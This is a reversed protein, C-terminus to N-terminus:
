IYYEFFPVHARFFSRATLYVYLPLFTWFAWKTMPRRLFLLFLSMMFAGFILERAGLEIVVVFLMSAVAAISRTRPLLLLLAALMEFVYVGNSVILFLTSDVAYPGAGEMVIAQGRLRQFEEVPLMPRFFWAFRDDFAISHGLFQGDFYRGYLVKQLGTYFFFVITMWRVGRMLLDGEARRREDLLGFLILFLLELFVHNATLPFSVVVRLGVLCAAIAIAWRALGPILGGLCVVVLVRTAVGDVPGAVDGSNFTLLSRLAVHILLFLRFWHLHARFDGSEGRTPLSLLRDASM